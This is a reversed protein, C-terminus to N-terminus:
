ARYLSVDGLPWAVLGALEDANLLCPQRLLPASRETLWRRVVVSPWWAQYLHAGPANATHLAAIVRAQLARARGTTAAVTGVRGSAVFLPTAQKA